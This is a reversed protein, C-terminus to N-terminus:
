TRNLIEVIPQREERRLAMFMRPMLPFHFAMHFEDGDGFYARVGEPWQNAEALLIRDKYRKDIHRRMERCIDHTESLNACCTGEGESLYPVADVRFGAVGMDRWHSMV